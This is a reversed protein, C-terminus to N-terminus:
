KSIGSCGVGVYEKLKDKEGVFVRVGGSVVLGRERKRERERERRNSAMM